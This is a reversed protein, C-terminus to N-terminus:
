VQTVPTLHTGTCCPCDRKKVQRGMKGDATGSKKMSVKNEVGEGEGNVLVEGLAVIGLMNM